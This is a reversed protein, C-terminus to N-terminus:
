HSGKLPDPDDIHPNNKHHSRNDIHGLCHGM